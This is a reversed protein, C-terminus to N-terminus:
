DNSVEAPDHTLSDLSAAPASHQVVASGARKISGTAENDYSGGVPQLLDIEYLVTSKSGDANAVTVRMTDSNNEDVATATVGADKLRLLQYSSDFSGFSDEAMVPVAVATSALLALALSSLLKTM